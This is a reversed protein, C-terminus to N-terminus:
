AVGGPEAEGLVGFEIECKVYFLRVGEQALHAVLRDWEEATATM